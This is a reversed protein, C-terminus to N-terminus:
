PSSSPAAFTATAESRAKIVECITVQLDRMVADTWFGAYLNLRTALRHRSSLVLRTEKPSVPVLVFEGFLVDFSDTGVKVHEDLVDPRISAADVAIDFALRRGPEWATLREHFVIGGSFSATRLAGLGDRDLAAEIPRPIGILRFASFRLAKPDIAPVRAVNAWVTAADAHILVENMVVREVTPVRLRDEIPAVL